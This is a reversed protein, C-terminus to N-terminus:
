SRSRVNKLKVDGSGDSRLAFREATDVFIDGSSDDVSVEGNVTYVMVDGSNDSIDLDGTVTNVELDGSGDDVEVNGTVTIISLDGSGDKVDVDGTVTRIRSEGSGDKLKVNGTIETIEMDGSGDTVSINSQIGHIETDGSKDQIRMATKAPVIVELDIHTRGDSEETTHAYLYARNGHQRLYLEYDDPSLNRGRVKAVVSISDANKDGNIILDGAGASVEFKSIDEAALSLEKTEEDWGAFASTSMAFASMMLFLKSFKKM